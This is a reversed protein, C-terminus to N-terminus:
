LSASNRGPIAHNLPDGPDFQTIKPFEIPEIHNMIIAEQALRIAESKPDNTVNQLITRKGMFSRILSWIRFLEM